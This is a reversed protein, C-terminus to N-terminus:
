HGTTIRNFWIMILSIPTSDIRGFKKRQKVFIKKWKKDNLKLSQLMLFYQRYKSIVLSLLLFQFFLSILTQYSQSKTEDLPSFLVNNNEFSLSLNFVLKHPMNYSPELNM